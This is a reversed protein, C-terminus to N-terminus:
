FLQAMMVKTRVMKGVFDEEVQLTVKDGVAGRPKWYHAVHDYTLKRIDVYCYHEDQDRAHVRVSGNVALYVSFIIEPM